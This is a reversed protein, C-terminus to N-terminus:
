RGMCHLSGVTVHTQSVGVEGYLPSGVYMINM